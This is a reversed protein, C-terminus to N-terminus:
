RDGAIATQQQAATRAPHALFSLAATSVDEAIAEKVALVVVAAGAATLRPSTAPLHFMVKTGTLPSVVGVVYTRVQRRAIKLEIAPRESEQRAFGTGTLTVVSPSLM